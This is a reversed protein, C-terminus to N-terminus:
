VATACLDPDKENVNFSGDPHHLAVTTITVTIPYQWIHCFMKMITPDESNTAMHSLWQSFMSVSPREELVDAVKLGSEPGAHKKVEKVDISTIALLDKRKVMFSTLRKTASKKMQSISIETAWLPICDGDPDKYEMLMDPVGLKLGVTSLLQVDTQIRIQGFRYPIGISGVTGLLTASMPALYAQHLQNPLTATLLRLDEAYVLKRIVKDEDGDEDISDLISLYDDNSVNFFELVEEVNDADKIAIIIWKCLGDKPVCEDASKPSAERQLPTLVPCINLEAKPKSPSEFELSTATNKPPHTDPSLSKMFTTSKGGLQPSRLCSGRYSTVSSSQLRYEFFNNCTEPSLLRTTQIPM